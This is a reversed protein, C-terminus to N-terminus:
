CARGGALEHLAVGARPDELAAEDPRIDVPELRRGAEQGLCLAGFSKVRARPHVVNDQRYTHREDPKIERTHRSGRGCVCRSAPQTSGDCSGAPTHIRAQTPNLPEPNLPGRIGGLGGKVAGPYPDQPPARVAQFAKCHRGSCRHQAAHEIGCHIQLAIQTPQM